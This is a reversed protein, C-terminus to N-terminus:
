DSAVLLSNVVSKVGPVEWAIKIARQRADLSRVTGTLYVNGGSSVVIIGDLNAQKDSHLRTTVAKSLAQDSESEETPIAVKSGDSMSQCASFLPAILFVLLLTRCANWRM